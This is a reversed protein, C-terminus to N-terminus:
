GAIVHGRQKCMLADTIGLDAAKKKVSIRLVNRQSNCEFM